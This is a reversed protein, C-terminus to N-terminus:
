MKVCRLDSNAIRKSFEFSSTRVDHSRENQAVVPNVEISGSCKQCEKKMLVGMCLKKQKVKVRILKELTFLHEDQVEPMQDRIWEALRIVYEVNHGSAGNSTM